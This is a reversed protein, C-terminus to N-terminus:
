PLPPLSPESGGTADAGALLQQFAAADVAPGPLAFRAADIPATSISKLQLKDGMSIRLPAGKAFVERLRPQLQAGPILPGFAKLAADLISAFATGVPALDRDASMVADITNGDPRDLRITWLTGRRGAIEEEPGQRIIVAEDAKLSGAPEGPVMRRALDLFAQREVVIPTAGELLIVYDAAGRHVLAFKGPLEARYDGNDDVEVSVEASGVQYRATVDAAAPLPVMALATAFLAARRM